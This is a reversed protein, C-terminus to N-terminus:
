HEDKFTTPADPYQKKYFEIYELKRKERLAFYKPYMAKETPHWYDLVWDPSPSERDYACGGPSTAFVLPQPHLFGRLEEEGALLLEKAKRLDKIDKNADFRARLLVAEYRSNIWHKVFVQKDM